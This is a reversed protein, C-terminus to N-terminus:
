PTICMSVFMMFAIWLAITDVSLSLAWDICYWDNRILIRLHYGIALSFLNNRKIEYIAKRNMMKLHFFAQVDSLINSNQILEMKLRSSNFRICFKFSFREEVAGDTTNSHFLCASVWVLICTFLKTLSIMVSRYAVLVFLEQM